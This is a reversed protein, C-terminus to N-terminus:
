MYFESFLLSELLKAQACAEDACFSNEHFATPAEERGDLTAVQRTSANYIVVFCGGGIGTSQPQVVNLMFQMVAAADVANGGPRTRARAGRVRVCAHVFAPGFPVRASKIEGGRETCVLVPAALVSVVAVHRARQLRTLADKRLPLWAAMAGGRVRSRVGARLAEFGAETALFHTSSVAGLPSASATRDQGTPTLTSTHTPAPTPTLPTDAAGTCTQATCPPKEWTSEGSAENYYYYMEFNQDWFTQWGEPLQSSSTTEGSDTDTRPPTWSQGSDSDGAGTLAAGAGTGPPACVWMRLALARTASWVRWRGNDTGARTDPRACNCAGRPAARRGPSLSPDPYTARDGDGGSFATALVMVVLLGVGGVLAVRKWGV